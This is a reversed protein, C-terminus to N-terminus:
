FKVKEIEGNKNLNILSKVSVSRDDNRTKKVVGVKALISTYEVTNSYELNILKSLEKVTREKESCLEIIRIRKENALASFLNKLKIIDLKAM